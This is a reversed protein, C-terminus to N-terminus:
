ERAEYGLQKVVSFLKDRDLSNGTVLAHGSELNVQATRVGSVGTLGREISDACHSCHMGTVIFELRQTGSNVDVTLESLSERKHKSRYKLMLYSNAMVLLMLVAWLHALWGSGNGPHSHNAIRTIGTDFFPMIWNLLLGFGVASGAVTMLYILATRKGLINWTTTFAAANTAPGAILFALAAGASAGMHIFGAAIPVSATACVYVPIGVLMMLIISLIGSGIYAELFGKPVIVSMLGAILVGILLAIGIDRPLRVFGYDLLKKFRNQGPPTVCCDDTCVTKEGADDTEKKNGFFMVLGGGVIGTILAALPRFIGFVPGLMGYTIAISDVGTQPTSLLFSTTAAKSSGQHRISAAVPIVGCSCLPLPIGFLSAKLVPGFGRGGLNREVWAPSIVVSLIGAVLFGFLLYPSMQGLIM